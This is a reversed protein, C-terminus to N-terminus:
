KEEEMPEGGFGNFGGFFMKSIFDQKFDRNKLISIL